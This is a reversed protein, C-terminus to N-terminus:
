NKLDKPKTKDRLILLIIIGIIGTFSLIAGLKWTYGKGKSLSLFTYYYALALPIIPWTGTYQSLAPVLFCLFIAILGSIIAKNRYSPIM